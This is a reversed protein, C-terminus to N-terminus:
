PLHPSLGSISTDVFRSCWFPVLFVSQLQLTFSTFYGVYSGFASGLPILVPSQVSSRVISSVSCLGLSRLSGGPLGFSVSRSGPPLHTLSLDLSITPLFM